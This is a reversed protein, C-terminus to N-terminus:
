FTIGVKAGFASITNNAYTASAGGASVTVDGLVTYSYGASLM